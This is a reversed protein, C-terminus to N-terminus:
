KPRAATKCHGGYRKWELHKNNNVPDLSSYLERLCIFAEKDDEKLSNLLEEHNRQLRGVEVEIAKDIKQPSLKAKLEIGKKSHSNQGKTNFSDWNDKKAKNCKEFGEKKAKVDLYEEFEKKYRDRICM